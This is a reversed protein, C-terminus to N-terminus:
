ASKSRHKAAQPCTAYHSTRVKGAAQLAPLEDKPPITYMLKDGDNFTLCNGKPSPEADIPAQKGTVTNTAYWIKKGCTKCTAM